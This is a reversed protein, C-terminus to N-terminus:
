DLKQNYFYITIAYIAIVTLSICFIYWKNSGKRKLTSLYSFGPNNSINSISTEEEEM